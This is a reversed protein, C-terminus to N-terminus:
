DVQKGLPIKKNENAKKIDEQEKAYFSLLVTTEAPTFDLYETFNVNIKNTFVYILNYFNYLSDKYISNLVGICTNKLVSLTIDEIGLTEEKKFLFHENLNAELEYLFRKAETFVNGPLIKFIKKREETSIDSIIIESEDLNVKDICDEIIEDISTYYLKKPLSFRVNLNNKLKFNKLLDIKNLNKVLNYVEVRKTIKNQKNAEFQIDPSICISRLTTLIIFKDLFNLKNKEEKNLILNNLIYEYYENLLFMNQNQLLKLLNFFHKNKLENIYVTRNNTIQIPLSFTDNM